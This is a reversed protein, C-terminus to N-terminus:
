RYKPHPIWRAERIMQAYRWTVPQGSREIAEATREYAYGVRCHTVQWMRGDWAILAYAVRQDGDSPFGVAGISALRQGRVIRMGLFLVDLECVRRLTEVPQPGGTVLDGALVMADYREGVLDALVAEFAELNGHIDALGAVTFM